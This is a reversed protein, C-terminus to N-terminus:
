ACPQRAQGNLPPGSVCGDSNREGSLQRSVRGPLGNGRCDGFLSRGQRDPMTRDDHTNILCLTFARDM